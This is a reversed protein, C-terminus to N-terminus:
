INVLKKVGVISGCSGCLHVTDKASDILFVCPGCCLTFLTVGMCLAWTGAGSERSVVTPGTAKCNSCTVIQSNTGWYVTPNTSPQFQYQPNHQYQQAVPQQAATQYVPAAAPIQPKQETKGNNM